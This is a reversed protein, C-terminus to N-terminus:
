SYNYCYEFLTSVIVVNQLTKVKTVEEIDNCLLYRNCFFIDYLSSEQNNIINRSYSM